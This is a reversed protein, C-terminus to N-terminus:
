APGAKALAEKLRAIEHDRKGIIAQAEDLQRRTKSLVQSLAAIRQFLDAIAKGAGVRQRKVGAVEEARRTAMEPDEPRQQRGPKFKANPDGHKRLRTYHTDCLGKAAARKSCGPITCNSM